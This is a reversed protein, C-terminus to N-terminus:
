AGGSKTILRAAEAQEALWENLMLEVLLKVLDDTDKDDFQRAADPM